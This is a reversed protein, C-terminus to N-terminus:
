KILKSGKCYKHRLCRYELAEDKLYNNYTRVGVPVYEGCYGCRLYHHPKNSEHEERIVGVNACSSDSVVTSINTEKLLDKMKSLNTYTDSEPFKM